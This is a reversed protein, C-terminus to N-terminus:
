NVIYPLCVSNDLQKIFNSLRGHNLNLHYLNHLTKIAQSPVEELQNKSLVLHSLINAQSSLSGSGLVKPLIGSDNNLNLVSQTMWEITM